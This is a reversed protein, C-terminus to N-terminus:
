PGPAPIPAAKCAGTACTGGDCSRGCAGCNRPDSDLKSECGDKPDLNCDAFGTTCSFGCANGTCTATANPPLPCATCSAGCHTADTDLVCSGSCAHYSAKCTFSCHGDNCASAANSVDPCRGDCGGCHDVSTLPAVCAGGCLLPATDSCGSACAFTGNAPACVPKDAPCADNCSGCTAPKSVDIECGDLPDGNCDAYGRDCAHVACQQERCESTAHALNCPECTPAGSDSPGKREGTVDASLAAPDLKAPRNDLISNCGAILFAVSGLIARSRRRRRTPTM